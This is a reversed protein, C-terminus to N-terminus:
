VEKLIQFGAPYTNSSGDTFRVGVTPFISGVVKIGEVVGFETVDGPKLTKAAVFTSM